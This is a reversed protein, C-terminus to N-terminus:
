GNFSNCDGKKLKENEFKPSNWRKKPVTAHRKFRASAPGRTGLKYQYPYEIRWAQGHKTGKLVGDILMQRIRRTSVNFEDAAREVTVAELFGKADYFGKKSVSYNNEVNLVEWEIFVRRLASKPCKEIDWGHSLTRKNNPLASTVM